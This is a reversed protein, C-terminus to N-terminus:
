FGAPSIASASSFVPKSIFSDVSCAFLVQDYNEIDIEGLQDPTCYELDIFTVSGYHILLFPLYSFATKDAFVLLSEEYPSIVSIDIRQGQGGLPVSNPDDLVALHSPFLTYYNKSVGDKTHTVMYERNYRTFRYLTIIDPRIDKYVSREYLEGYFDQSLHEVEFQDLSRKGLGLRSALSSYVYYGGLGTLNTESRYYIYQDKAAFLESYADVTSTSGSLSEYVQNILQKQNFITVGSPIDQQKIACATPILMVATPLSNAGIFTKIGEINSRTVAPDSESINEILYDDTIFIGSYERTGTNLLLTPALDALPPLLSLREKATSDLWSALELPSSPAAGTPLLFFALVAAALM